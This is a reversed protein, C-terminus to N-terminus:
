NNFDGGCIKWYLEPNRLQLFDIYLNLIDQHRFSEKNVIKLALKLSNIKDGCRGIKNRYATLKNQTARNGCGCATFCMDRMSQDNMLNHLESEYTNLKAELKEKLIM